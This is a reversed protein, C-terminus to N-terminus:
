QAANRRLLHRLRTSRTSLYRWCLIGLAIGVGDCVLDLLDDTGFGYGFAVQSTEIGVAIAVGLILAVRSGVLMALLFVPATLMLAHLVSRAKSWLYKLRLPLSGSVELKGLPEVSVVSAPVASPLSHPEPSAITKEVTANEIRFTGFMPKLMGWPGPVMFQFSMVVMLAAALSARMASVGTARRLVWSWWLWWVAMLGVAAMGWWARERLVTMRFNMLDMVGSRGHHELRLVATAPGDLPQVVVGTRVCADEHRASAVADRDSHDPSRLSHWEILVRGDQWQLPGPDLSRAKAEIDLLAFSAPPLAHLPILFASAKASDVRRVRLCLGDDSRLVEFGPESSLGDALQALSLEPVGPMREFRHNWCFITAAVLLLGILSMRWMPM